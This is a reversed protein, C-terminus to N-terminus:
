EPELHEGSPEVRVGYDCFGCQYVVADKVLGRELDLDAADPHEQREMPVWTDGHRHTLKLNEWDIVVAGEVDVEHNAVDYPPGSLARIATNTLSAAQLGLETGSPGFGSRPHGDM